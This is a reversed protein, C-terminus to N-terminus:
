KTDLLSFLAAESVSLAADPAVAIPQRRELDLLAQKRWLGGGYGGLQGNKNVVRHCPILIAIRNLGNATGVARCASPRGLEQALAEYSRTAGYPITCLLDWVARQFDSGPYVLPVTFQTLAGAFYGHLEARAQDLYATNGPVIACRFLRRLTVFQAELMRRSTFEALCLGASSAGLIMPGLPTELMGVHICETTQAKGPSQGFTKKFADRFGSHSEYGNGLTVDDLNVGQHIQLLAQGMRRGRCYAQFTMAYHKLFYRRARAPDIGRTRLDADTIRAAPDREIDLLLQQVWAPPTGSIHLPDCRKCPRFGAFIAERPTAFYEVNRPLPKRAPCSPRCFVGTTRVGLFFIGDYSTDRALYAREMESIPPLSQM